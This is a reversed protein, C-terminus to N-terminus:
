KQIEKVWHITRGKVIEDNQVEYGNPDTKQQYVKFEFKTKTKIDPHYNPFIGSDVRDSHNKMFLNFHNMYGSTNKYYARKAIRRMSKALDLIEDDSLDDLGRHPNLKADYLIEAVLYNGIGSVIANQDMLVKVLNKNKRTKDRYKKLMNALDNNSMENKLIDPALKDLKKQLVEKKDTFEITGFNRPDIYFLDYTKGAQTRSQITMKFRGSTVQQRNETEDSIFSWKGTLGFTNLLYIIKDNKDKLKFWMFKGKSDISIVTMPTNKTLEIGKMKEHTYRGSIIEFSKITKKRTKTKLYQTTILIEPGEPM